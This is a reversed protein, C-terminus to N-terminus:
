TAMSSDSGQKVKFEQVLFDITAEDRLKCVINQNAFAGKFRKAHTQDVTERWEIGVVHEAHEAPEGNRKLRPEALPQEFLPGDPTMFEAAPIAERNVVGYGIYGNGKDYVFIEDGISLQELRKTYFDGGGASIFGYRQMDAWSRHEGLGANVFYYGSWPARVKRESREEVAEQDLLFDTTLWEQGDAEFVNFFVTNIAVGHEESLYEVIRRSALDLESAVILMSHTANLRDPIGEGFRERFATVLRTNLYKEAREYIEPTTLTIVWSAYDLVQAVIERPTRDKKLEIIILGGSADMALLDIFKGHGTPVQRGIIMADIGVLSPNKAVWGEIMEEKSLARHVAPRLEGNQIQYLSTM